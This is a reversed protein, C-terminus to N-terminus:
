APSVGCRQRLSQGKLDALKRDAEEVTAKSSAKRALVVFPVIAKWANEGEEVAVRRAEEAREIEAALQTCDSTPLTRPGHAPAQASAWPSLAVLVLATPMPHWKM